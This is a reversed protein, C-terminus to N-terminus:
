FFFYRILVYFDIGHMFAYLNWMGDVGRLGDHVGQLGPQAGGVPQRDQHPHPHRRAEHRQGMAYVALHASM